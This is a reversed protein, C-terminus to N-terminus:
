LLEGVDGGIALRRGDPSFAVGGAGPHRFPSVTKQALIRNSEWETVRITGKTDSTALLRGDPSFALHGISSENTLTATVKRSDTNWMKVVPRGAENWTAVALLSDTPSFALTSANDPLEAIPRQTALDWLPVGPGKAVALLKGDKSVAVLSVWSYRHLTVLEDGQCLQWLYRWEWGRLDTSPQPNFTSPKASAPRYKDLLSIAQAAENNALARQALNM